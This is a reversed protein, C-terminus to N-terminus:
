FTELHKVFLQHHDMGQQRLTPKASWFHLFMVTEVTWSADAAALM